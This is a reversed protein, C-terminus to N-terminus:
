RAKDPDEDGDFSLNIEPPLSSDAKKVNRSSVRKKAKKVSAETKIGKKKLNEISKQLVNEDEESGPPVLVMTAFDMLEEEEMDDVRAELLHRFIYVPSLKETELISVNFTRSFARCMRRYIFDTNPNLANFIAELAAKRHHEYM